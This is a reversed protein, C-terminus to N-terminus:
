RSSAPCARRPRRATPSTRARSRTRTCRRACTAPTSGTSACTPSSPPSSTRAAARAGGEVRRLRGLGRLGRGRRRLHHERDHRAHAALLPLALQVLALPAVANTRLIEELDAPDLSPWRRCAAVPRARQRQERAPRPRRARAPPPSWRAATTPTPSTAPSPSRAGPAAFTAHAARSRSRTEPTSSSTGAALPSTAPSHAASDASAGTVIATRTSEMRGRYAWAKGAAEAVPGIREPCNTM